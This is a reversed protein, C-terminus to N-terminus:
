LAFQIRFPYCKNRAEGMNASDYIVQYFEENGITGDYADENLDSYTAFKMDRWGDQNAGGYAVVIDVRDTQGQDYGDLMEFIDITAASGESELDSGVMYVAILTPASEVDSEDYKESPISSEESISTDEVCGTLGM